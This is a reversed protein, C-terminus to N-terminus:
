ESSGLEITAVSFTQFSAPAWVSTAAFPAVADQHAADHTAVCRQWIAQLKPDFNVDDFMDHLFQRGPEDKVHALAQSFKEELSKGQDMQELGDQAQRLVADDRNCCGDVLSQGVCEHRLRLLFVM